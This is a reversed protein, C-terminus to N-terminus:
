GVNMVRSGDTIRHWRHRVNQRAWALVNRMIISSLLRLSPARRKKMQVATAGADESAPETEVGDDTGIICLIYRLENILHEETVAQAPHRRRLGEVISLIQQIQETESNLESRELTAAQVRQQREITALSIIPTAADSTSSSSSPELMRRSEDLGSFQDSGAGLSCSSFLGTLWSSWTWSGSGSSSSSSVDDRMNYASKRERNKEKKKKRRKKQTFIQPLRFSHLPIAMLIIINQVSFFNVCHGYHM